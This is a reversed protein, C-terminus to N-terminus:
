SRSSKSGPPSTKDGKCCSQCSKMGPEKRKALREPKGLWINPVKFPNQRSNSKIGILRNRHTKSLWDPTFRHKTEPLTLLFHIIVRCPLRFDITALRDLNCRSSSAPQSNGILPSIALLWRGSRLNLSKYPASFRPSRRQLSPRGRIIRRAELSKASTQGVRDLLKIRGGLRTAGM